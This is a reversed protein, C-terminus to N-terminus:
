GMDLLDRCSPRLGRRSDKRLCQVTQEVRGLGRKFASSSNQLRAPLGSNPAMEFRGHEGVVFGANWVAGPWSRGQVLKPRVRFGPWIRTFCARPPPFSLRGAGRGSIMCAM